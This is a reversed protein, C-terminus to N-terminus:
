KQELMTIIDDDTIEGFIKQIVLRTHLLSGNIETNIEYDGYKQCIDLTSFESIYSEGSKPNHSLLYYDYGNINM